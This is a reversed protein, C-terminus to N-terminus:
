NVGALLSCAGMETLLFVTLEVGDLGDDRTGPCCVRACGGGQGVRGCGFQAENGTAKKDEVIDNARQLAM